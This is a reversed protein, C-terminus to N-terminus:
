GGFADFRVPAPEHFLEADGVKWREDLKSEQVADSRGQSDTTIINDFKGSLCFLFIKNCDMVQHHVEGDLCPPVTPEIFLAKSLDSSKM